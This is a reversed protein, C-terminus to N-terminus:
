YEFMGQVTQHLEEYFKINGKIIEVRTNIAKIRKTKAIETKFFNGISFAKAERLEELAEDLDMQAQSIAEELKRQLIAALLESHTGLEKVLKANERQFSEIQRQTEKQLADIHRDTNQSLNKLQEQMNLSVQINNQMAMLITFFITLVIAGIQLFSNIWNEDFFILGVGGYSSLLVFFLIWYLKM